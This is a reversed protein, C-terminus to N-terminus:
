RLAEPDVSEVFKFDARLLDVLLHETDGAIAEMAAQFEKTEPGYKVADAELARKPRAVPIEEALDEPAEDASDSTRNWEDETPGDDHDGGAPHETDIGTARAVPGKPPAASKPMAGLPPIPGSSAPTAPTEIKKQGADQPLGAALNSLEKIVSDIARTRSQDVARLLAVEFNVRQSLGSRVQSEGSQLADLMRTLSEATLPAGLSDTSGGNRIAEIMAERTRSQIDLLVRYLDRGEAAIAEIAAFLKQYDAIAIAKVIEDITAPAALGYVDLAKAETIDNGCFSILQDLISQADRMGGDAMRAIAKLAGDDVKIDDAQAIITLREIIKEDPIPRFEFRQCRSVVTPLVKNAETTAFIFKVHSPPEELTKLLANWAQNSLMHVEDIIYIKFQGQTPAYQCEERLDRIQDVGNNSAGDIEIVDMCSGSMIAQSIPTSDDPAVQPGGEANLAKAFIRATTTKGTGRPGVFLYAHAIRNTEIANKLTRVIHEQGVMEDFQKPRWRRAIVQYAEQAM